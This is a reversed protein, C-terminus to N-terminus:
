RLLISEIDNAVVRSAPIGNVFGANSTVTLLSKSNPDWYIIASHGWSENGRAVLLADGNAATSLFWGDAAWGISVKTRPRMMEALTSGGIIRKAILCKLFKALDDATSWIGGSGIYGWDGKRFAHGPPILVRAVNSTTGDVEKWFLSRDMDAPRFVRMRVYNEYTTGSKQEIIAALLAYNDDSYVFRAGPACVLRMAFIASVAADRSFHGDAAYKQPLCSTHDLLEAITISRKDKPVNTFVAGLSSKPDLLGREVLSYVATATIAKSVSAINFLTGVNAQHMKRADAWGVGREFLVRGDM